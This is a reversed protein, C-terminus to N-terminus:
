RHRRSSCQGFLHWRLQGFWLAQRYPWRRSTWPLVRAGLLLDSADLGSSGADRRGYPLLFPAAFLMYALRFLANPVGYIALDFLGIQGAREDPYDEKLLGNVVLNTSTGVLTCTGGLITAYSLPMLLQQRPIGNMKGWRLVLPIGVAVIPTNNFFASITAIPVMLRIQAGAIMKPKGLLKGM